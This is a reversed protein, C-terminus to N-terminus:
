APQNAAVYYAAFKGAGYWIAVAIIAGLYGDVAYHWALQVSGIMIITAFVSLAIGLWRTVKFGYLAFLVATAVHMSPMASIGSLGSESGSYSNWLTAQVNLAWVPVVEAASNLYTMLPAYPDTGGLLPGYFCPGASSFVIALVNGGIFWIGMFALLFQMRLVRNKTVGCNVILITFMLFFWFNYASNLFLTVYPHGTVPQLIEWPSMGFHLTRDLEYFWTDWAFPNVLPVATKLFSFGILMMAVAILSHVFGALAENERVSDYMWKGMAKFLSGQLGSFHLQTAKKMILFLLIAGGNVSINFAFFSLPGMSLQMGLSAAIIMATVFVTGGAIYLPLNPRISRILSVVIGNAFARLRVAPANPDIWVVEVGPYTKESKITRM